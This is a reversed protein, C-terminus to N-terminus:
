KNNNTILDGMIGSDGFAGYCTIHLIEVNPQSQVKGGDVPHYSHITIETKTGHNQDAGANLTKESPVYLKRCLKTAPLKEKSSGISCVM